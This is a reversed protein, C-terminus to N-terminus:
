AAPPPADLLDRVMQYYVPLNAGCPELGFDPMHRLASARAIEREREPTMTSGLFPIRGMPIQVNAYYRKM